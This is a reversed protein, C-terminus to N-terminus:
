NQVLDLAYEPWWAGAVPGGNCEGDSEGPPKVWLYADVLIHRTQITPVHGIARGVPNCWEGNSGNGNRSTDIIFHKRKILNSIKTGYRLNQKTTYFNSVNLAFGDATHVNAQKLRQAMETATQWHPHGADIYVTIHPKSKLIIVADAIRDVATDYLCDLALADPELIVIAHRNGIGSAFAQVWELYAATDASGGSSYNGCDRDPINYAVMVPLTGAKKLKTVYSDVDSQINTNWDGFWRATPQKAIKKLAKANSPHSSKWDTIQQKANSVPDVYLQTNLFPNSAQSQAPVSLAFSICIIFLLNNYIKM